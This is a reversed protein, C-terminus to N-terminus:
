PLGVSRELIRSAATRRRVRIIMGGVYSGFGCAIHQVSSNASMFGGRLRPEVSGTILAVAAIMRGVNCVMLSGFVVVAVTVPVPPLHTIALLLLGSVPAIIRYIKVKGYTDALRGVIPSAILTLGGGFVIYIM